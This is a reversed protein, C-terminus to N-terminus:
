LQSCQLIASRNATRGGATTVECTLVYNTAIVAESVWVTVKTGSILASSITLGAPSGTVTATVIQDDASIWDVFEFSFDLLDGPAIGPDFFQTAM